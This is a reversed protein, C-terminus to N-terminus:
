LTAIIEGALFHTSLILDWPQSLLYVFPRLSMRELAIRLRDWHNPEVRRGKDMLNYFFGLVQPALDIFEVYMKGYCRRFPATALDLVDLNKVYADPRVQRLALEVAEAARLHGTGASVSLILVRPGRAYGNLSPPPSLATHGNRQTGSGNHRSDGALRNLLHPLENMPTKGRMVRADRSCYAVSM